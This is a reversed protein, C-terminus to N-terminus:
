PLVASRTSLRYREEARVWGLEVMCRSFHDTGFASVLRLCLERDDALAKRADTREQEAILRQGEMVGGGSILLVLLGAGCPLILRDFAIIERVAAM